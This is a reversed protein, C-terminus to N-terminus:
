QYQDLFFDFGLDPKMAVEAGRPVFSKWDALEMTERVAEPVSQRVKVISVKPKILLPVTAGYTTCCESNAL